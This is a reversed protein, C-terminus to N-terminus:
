GRRACTARVAAAVLALDALQEVSTLALRLGADLETTVTVFMVGGSLVLWAAALVVRSALGARIALLCALWTPILVAYVDPTFPSRLAALQLVALWALADHLRSAGARRGLAYAAAVVVATYVWAVIAATEFGLGLKLVIGFISHNSDIAPVFGALWPFASGDAMRPLQFAVFARYPSVGFWALAVLSALAGAAAMAGAARWRRRAILYVVLVGPFLKAVALMGLLSGGLLPRDREIAVLAIAALAVLALQFNGIQLTLVTAPAFLVAPALLGAILGARDGIWAALAVLAAALLAVEVAFWAARWAFFDDSVALAARAPVLFPPPYEYLDVQFRGIRGADDPDGDSGTYLTPEYLNAVGDRALTAARYYATLCDHRRFFADHPAGSFATADPEAMFQSVRLLNGAGALALVLWAIALARHGGALEDVAAPMRRAAAVSVAIAVAAAAAIAIATGAGLARGVAYAPAAAVAGAM